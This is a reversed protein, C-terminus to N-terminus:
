SSKEEKKKLREGVRLVASRARVNHEVEFEKAKGGKVLLQFEPVLSAALVPLKSPLQDHAKAKKQMFRKVIRDELSHFSLVVLRGRDDLVNYAADLGAELDELEKNIFIRIAQFTRTAPHKKGAGFRKPVVSEIIEALESTTEISQEARVECIKRAIKRSLKDEGYKWIVHALEKESVEQLWEAATQGETRNMRMDLPGSRMFSFGREADDLQPSSVGLDMLIGSVKGAFGLSEIHAGLNAFSDHVIIFEAGKGNAQTELEAKLEGAYEIATKDKDFVVLTASSNLQSYLAKTHGGRGFTCDIYVGGPNTKWWELAEDLLVSKHSFKKHSCEQSGSTVVEAKKFWGM